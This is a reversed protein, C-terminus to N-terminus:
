VGPFSYLILNSSWSIVKDLFIGANKSGVKSDQVEEKVSSGMHFHYSAIEM